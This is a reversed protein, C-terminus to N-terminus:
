VVDQYEQEVGLQRHKQFFFVFRAEPADALPVKKMRQRYAQLIGPVREPEFGFSFGGTMTIGRVVVLRTFLALHVGIRRMSGSLGMDTLVMEPRDPELLDRLRITHEGPAGDETAVFSTRSRRHAELVETELPELGAACPDVTEVLTKGNLRYEHFWFDFFANQAAEGDFMLTRGAVPLTMRKAIRLANFDLHRTTEFAKSHMTKGAARIEQYLTM